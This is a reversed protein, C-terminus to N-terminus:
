SRRKVICAFLAFASLASGTIALIANLFKSASDSTKPNAINTKASASAQNGMSRGTYTITIVSGEFRGTKVKITIPKSPDRFSFVNDFDSISVSNAGIDINNLINMMVLGIDKRDYADSTYGSKDLAAELASQDYALNDISITAYRDENDFDYSLIDFDGNGSANTGHPFAHLFNQHESTLAVKQSPAFSQEQSAIMIANDSTGYKQINNYSAVIGGVAGLSTLPSLDKIHNNNVNLHIASAANGRSKIINALNSVDTINNDTLDISVRASKILNAYRSLDNGAKLTSLDLHNVSLNNLPSLDLGSICQLGLGRVFGLNELPKLSKYQHPCQQWNYFLDVYNLLANDVTITNGNADGCSGESSYGYANGEGAQRATDFAESLAREVDECLQKDAATFRLLTGGDAFTNATISPTAAAALAGAVVFAKAKTFNINKSM